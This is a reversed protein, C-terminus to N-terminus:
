LTLLLTGYPEGLRYALHEAHRVASLASVLVAGFLWLFILALWAPNRQLEFLANGWAFFALCTAGSAVLCWEQRLVSRRMAIMYKGPPPLFSDLGARQDGAHASAGEM